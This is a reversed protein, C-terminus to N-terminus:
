HLLATQPFRRTNGYKQFSQLTSLPVRVKLFLALDSFVGLELFHLIAISFELIKGHAVVAQLLVALILWKAQMIKVSGLGISAAYRSCHIQALRPYFSPLNPHRLGRLM